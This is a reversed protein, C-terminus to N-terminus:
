LYELIVSGTDPIHNFNLGRLNIGLMARHEAPHSRGLCYDLIVSLSMEPSVLGSFHSEITILNMKYELRKGIM